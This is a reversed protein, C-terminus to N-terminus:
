MLDFCLKMEERDKEREREVSLVFETSGLERVSAGGESSRESTQRRPSLLCRERTCARPVRDTSFSRITLEPHIFLSSSPPETRQKQTSLLGSHVLSFLMCAKKTRSPHFPHLRPETRQNQTSLLGSHVLSFLMCPKTRSPHIFTIVLPTTNMAKPHVHRQQYVQKTHM